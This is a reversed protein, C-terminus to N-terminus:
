FKLDNGLLERLKIFAVSMRREVAKVTIGTIEAIEKYSKKDIRSLLFVEREKTSLKNIAAELKAKFEDMEFIYEPNELHINASKNLNQHRLVVKKHEFQNILDNNCIAYLYSKATSLIIKACKDWLKVFADQAIDEAQEINGCKYYIYNRVPEFHKNFLM